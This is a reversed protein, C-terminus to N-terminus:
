IRRSEIPAYDAHYGMDHKEYDMETIDKFNEDKIEKAVRQPVNHFDLLEQHEQRHRHEELELMHNHKNHKNIKGVKRM